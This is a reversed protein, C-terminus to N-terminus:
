SSILILLIFLCSEVTPHSSKSLWLAKIILLNISNWKEVDISNAQRDTQLYFQKKKDPDFLEGFALVKSLYLFLM